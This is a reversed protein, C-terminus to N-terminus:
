SSGTKGLNQGCLSTFQRMQDISRYSLNGSPKGSLLRINPQARAPKVAQPAKTHGNPELDETIQDGSDVTVGEGEQVPDDGELMKRWVREQRSRQSDGERVKVM